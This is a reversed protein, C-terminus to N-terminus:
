QQSFLNQLDREYSSPITSEFIGTNAFLEPEIKDPYIEFIMPVDPDHNTALQSWVVRSEPILDWDTPNASIMDWSVPGRSKIYNLARPNTNRCMYVKAVPSMRPFKNIIYDVARDDPNIAFMADNILEPNDLFYDTALANKCLSRLNKYEQTCILDVIRQDKNSVSNASRLVIDPHNLLYEVAMPSSNMCLAAFDIKSSNSFLLKTASENSNMSLNKWSINWRNKRLLNIAANTENRSIFNWCEDNSELYRTFIPKIM